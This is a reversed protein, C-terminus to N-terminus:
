LLKELHCPQVTDLTFYRVYVDDVENLACIFYNQDM